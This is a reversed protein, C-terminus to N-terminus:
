DNVLFVKYDYVLFSTAALRNCDVIRGTYGLHEYNVIKIIIMFQEPLM